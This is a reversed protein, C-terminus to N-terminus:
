RAQLLNLLANQLCKGVSLKHHQFLQGIALRASRKGTYGKHILILRYRDSSTVVAHQVIVIGIPLQQGISFRVNNYPHHTPMRTSNAIRPLISPHILPVAQNLAHRYFDGQAIRQLVRRDDSGKGELPRSIECAGGFSRNGTFRADVVLEIDIHRNIIRHCQAQFAANQFHVM